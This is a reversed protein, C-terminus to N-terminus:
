VFEDETMYVRNKESGLKSLIDLGSSTDELIYKNHDAEFNILHIPAKALKKLDDWDEYDDLFIFRCTIHALQSRSSATFHPKAIDSLKYRAISKKFVFVDPCDAKFIYENIEIRNSLFRPVYYSPESPITHTTLVFTRKKAVSMDYLEGESINAQFIEQAVKLKEAPFFEHFKFRQGHVEIEMDEFSDKFNQPIGFKQLGETLIKVAGTQSNKELAKTLVIYANVRTM